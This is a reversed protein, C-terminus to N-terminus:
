VCGGAQGAVVAKVRPVRALASKLQQYVNCHAHAGVNQQMCFHIKMHLSNRGGFSPTINRSAFYLRLIAVELPLRIIAIELSLRLIVVELSHTINCRPLDYYQPKKGLRLIVVFLRLIVGEQTYLRKFKTVNPTCAM